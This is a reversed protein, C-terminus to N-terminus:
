PSITPALSSLAFLIPIFLVWQLLRSYLEVMDMELFLIEPSTVARGSYMM